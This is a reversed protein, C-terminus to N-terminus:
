PVYTNMKIQVYPNFVNFMSELGNNDSLYTNLIFNPKKARISRM